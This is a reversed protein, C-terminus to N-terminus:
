IKIIRSVFNYIPTEILFTIIVALLLTILTGFIVTSVYEQKLSTNYLLFAMITEHLMFIAMSIKGLFQCVHTRCLKALWSQEEDKTLGLIVLLQIHSFTVQSLEQITPINLELITRIAEYIIALCIIISSLDTIQGRSLSSNTTSETKSKTCAKELLPLTIEESKNSIKWPFLFHVYGTKNHLYEEGRLTLLGASIGMIFVPIRFIPHVYLITTMPFPCIYQLIIYPLFQIQFMIIILIQLMESSYSQLVPLLLQYILYLAMLTSVTWTASAPTWNELNIWTMSENWVWTNTMTVTSILQSM